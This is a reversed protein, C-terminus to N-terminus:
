RQSVTYSSMFVACKLQLPLGGMRIWGDFRQIVTFNQCEKYCLQIALTTTHRTLAENAMKIYQPDQPSCYLVVPVGSLLGKFVLFWSVLPSVYASFLGEERM